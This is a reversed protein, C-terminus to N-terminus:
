NNSAPCLYTEYGYKVETLNLRNLIVDVLSKGIFLGEQRGNLACDLNYFKGRMEKHEIIDYYTASDDNVEIYHMAQSSIYSDSNRLTMNKSTRLYSCDTGIVPYINEASEESNHCYNSTIRFLDFHDQETRIICFRDYHCDYGRERQYSSVKLGDFLPLLSNPINIEIAVVSDFDLAFGLFNLRLQINRRIQKDNIAAILGLRIRAYDELSYKMPFVYEYPSVIKAIDNVTYKNGTITDTVMYRGHEVGTLRFRTVAVYPNDNFIFEYNYNLAVGNVNKTFIGEADIDDDYRRTWNYLSALGNAGAYPNYRHLFNYGESVPKELDRLPTAFQYNDEDFRRVYLGTGADFVYDSLDNIGGGKDTQMTIVDMDPCYSFVTSSKNTRISILNDAERKIYMQEEDRYGRSLYVRLGGEYLECSKYDEFPWPAISYEPFVIQVARFVDSATKFRAIVGGRTTVAIGMESSDFLLPIHEGHHGTFVGKIDHALVTSAKNNVINFLWDKDEPFVMYQKIHNILDDPDVVAYTNKMKGTLKHSPFYGAIDETLMNTPRIETIGKDKDEYLNSYMILSDTDTDAVVVGYRKISKIYRM